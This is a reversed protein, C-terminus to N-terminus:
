AAEASEAGGEDESDTLGTRGELESRASDLVMSSVQGNGAEAMVGGGAESCTRLCVAAILTSYQLQRHLFCECREAIGSKAFTSGCVKMAVSGRM